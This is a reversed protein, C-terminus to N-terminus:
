RRQYVYAGAGLGTLTLVAILGLPVGGGGDTVDIAVRTTGSLHSNGREDDYRFDFSIPYTKATASGSAELDFTMTVTEGPELEEVFAEDDDSDLPDSAFLKAEVDTVPQDLNNTVEVDLLTADGAAIETPTVDVLFQDRQEDVSVMAAADEFLRAELDENRYQVALDIERDIAEAEGSVDVPFSFAASEGVDLSGVAVATEIPIVNPSEETFRVVVNEADTPGENTVYGELHGDEGVRLTSHVDTISFRQEAGPMVGAALGEDVRDLGDDTKFQVTAELPYNRVSTGDAVAVDYTAIATEGPELEEIRAASQLSEGFVLGEDFSELVVNLDTATEEGINELEVNMTGVDGVQADTHVDVIKFRAEDDVEVDFSTSWTRTRDYTVGSGSQQYTYAYSIDADITYTGADVDDPVSIAIPAQGPQADTVTGIAQEGSEVTLPTGSADAEVRVNRAATVVDRSEATGISMDGGNSILLEVEQTEGPHVTPNPVHLDLDPSGRLLPRDQQAQQFTDQGTHLSQTTAAPQSAAVGMTAVSTVLLIAIVLASVSRGTM